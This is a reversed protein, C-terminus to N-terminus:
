TIQTDRKQIIKMMTVVVYAELALFVCLFVVLPLVTSIQAANALTATVDASEMMFRIGFILAFHEPAGWLLVLLMAIGMALNRGAFMMAITNHAATDATFGPVVMDPKFYGSIGAGVGILVLVLAFARIKKPILNQANYM